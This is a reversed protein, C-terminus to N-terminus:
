LYLPSCSSQDLQYISYGAKITLNWGVVWRYTSLTVGGFVAAAVLKQRV